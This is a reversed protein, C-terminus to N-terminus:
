GGDQGLTLNIALGTEFLTAFEAPLTLQVGYPHYVLKAFNHDLEVSVVCRTPNGNAAALRIDTCKGRLTLTIM